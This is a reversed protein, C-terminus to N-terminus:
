LDRPLDEDVRINHKGKNCTLFCIQRKKVQVGTHQRNYPQLMVELAVSAQAM